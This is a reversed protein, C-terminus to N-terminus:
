GPEACVERLCQRLWAHAPDADLRPHWMQMVTLEPTAVPLAFSHLGVRAAATQREPVSAVLEGAAALALAASFEPVVVAVRRQLGQQALAADIPGHRRGRRSVSVHIAEAYRAPTVPTAALPHRPHVVGVFRDCFLRQVRVEPGSDGLVGVELDLGGDRLPAVSKDAKPAFRLCVDPAERWLRALWAAGFSQVFGENARIVFTRQLRTLELAGGDFLAQADRLVRAVPERLSLARPTPVLGRGARVLLPDGTLERLRALTRSMASVSVNLREAAGSVSGEALLVDFATLLNFDPSAMGALM